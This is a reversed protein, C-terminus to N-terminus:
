DLSSVRSSTLSLDGHLLKTGDTRASLVNPRERGSEPASVKNTDQHIADSIRKYHIQGALLKSPVSDRGPLAELGAVYADGEREPEYNRYM